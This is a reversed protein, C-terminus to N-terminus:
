VIPVHTYMYYYYTTTHGPRTWPHGFVQGPRCVYWHCHGQGLTRGRGRTFHHDPYLNLYAWVLMLRPQVNTWGLGEGLPFSAAAAAEKGRSRYPRLANYPGWVPRDLNPRPPPRPILPLYTGRMGGEDRAEHWIFICYTRALRSVLYCSFGALGYVYYIYSDWPEILTVKFGEQAHRLDNYWFGFM